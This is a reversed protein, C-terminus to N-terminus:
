RKGQAKKTARGQKGPKSARIEEVMRMQAAKLEVKAARRDGDHAALIAAKEAKTAAVIAPVDRDGGAADAGRPEAVAPTAKAEKTEVPMTSPVVVDPLKAPLEVPNAVSPDITPPLRPLDIPDLKPELSKLKERLEGTVPHGVVVDRLRDRIDPSPLPTQSGDRPATAHTAGFDGAFAPAVASAAFFTGAIITVIINKTM